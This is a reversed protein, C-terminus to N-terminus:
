LYSWSFCCFCTSARLVALFVLFLVAFHCFDFKNSTHTHTKEYKSCKSHWFILEVLVTLVNKDTYYLIIEKSMLGQHAKCDKHHVSIKLDECQSPFFRWTLRYLVGTFLSLLWVGPFLHPSLITKLSSSLGVPLCTEM